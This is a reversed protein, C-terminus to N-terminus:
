AHSSPTTLRQNFLDYFMRRGEREAHKLKCKNKKVQTNDHEYSSRKNVM